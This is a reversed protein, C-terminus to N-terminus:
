GGHIYEELTGDKTLRSIKGEPIGSKKLTKILEQIVGSRRMKLFPIV